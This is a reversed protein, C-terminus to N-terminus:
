KRDAPVSSVVFRSMDLGAGQGFLRNSELSEDDLFTQPDPEGTAPDFYFGDASSLRVLASQGPLEGDLISIMGMGCSLQRPQVPTEEGGHDLVLHERSALRHGLRDVQYVEDGDVLWRVVGASRDYSIELHHRDHPSRDAVPIAYSFAAYNGLQERSNPLREYFAYIQENTIFFDFVTSTEPDIANMTVSTLRLDADPNAVHDGFPHGGAGYTRGSMWTECSLEQGPEADFGQYGTSATHNTFVLWKVHDLTGPLGHGNDEEQAVTRVFAPEGTDPNRGSSVVRLGHQSTTVIGDDAVYPGAEIASWRADPGSTSFGDRFDDWVIRYSAGGAEAVTEAVASGAPLLAAACVLAAASIM